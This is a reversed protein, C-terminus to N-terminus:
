PRRSVKRGVELLSSKKPQSAHYVKATTTTVMTTSARLQSGGDPAMNPAIIAVRTGPTTVGASARAPNALGAGIVM